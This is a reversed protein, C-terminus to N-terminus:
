AKKAQNFGSLLLREKLEKGANEETIAEAETRKDQM